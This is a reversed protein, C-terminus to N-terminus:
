QLQLPFPQCRARILVGMLYLAKLVHSPLPPLLLLKHYMHSDCQWQQEHLFPSLQILALNLKLKIFPSLLPYEGANRDGKLRDLLLVKKVYESRSCYVCNFSSLAESLLHCPRYVRKAGTSTASQVVTKTVFIQRIAYIKTHYNNSKASKPFNWNELLSCCHLPPKHLM